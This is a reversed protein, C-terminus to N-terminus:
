HSNRAFSEGHFRFRQLGAGRIGGSAGAVSRATLADWGQQRVVELSAMLVAETNFTVAKPAM